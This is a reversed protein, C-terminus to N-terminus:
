FCHSPPAVPPLSRCARRPAALVASTRTSSHRWVLAECGEPSAVLITGYAGPSPHCPLRAHPWPLTSASSTPAAPPSPPSVALASAATLKLSPARSTHRRPRPRPEPRACDATPLRCVQVRARSSPSTMSSAAQMSTRRTRRRAPVSTSHVGPSPAPYPEPPADLTSDLPRHQSWLQPQSRAIEVRDRQPARKASLAQVPRKRHLLAPRVAGPWPAPQPQPPHHPPPSSSTHAPATSRPRSARPAHVSERTLEQGHPLTRREALDLLQKFEGPTLKNFHRQHLEVEEPTLKGPWRDAAIASANAANVAVFVCSWALPVQALTCAGHVCSCASRSSAALSM